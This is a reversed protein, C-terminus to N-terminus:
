TGVAAGVTLLEGDTMMISSKFPVVVVEEDGDGVKDDEPPPDNNSTDNNGDVAGLKDNTGLEISDSPPSSEDLEGKGVDDNDVFADVDGVIILEEEGDGDIRVDDYEENGDKSGVSDDEEEDDNGLRAGVIIDVPIGLADDEEKGVRLGIMTVLSGVVDTGVILAVTVEDSGGVMICSFTVVVLGFGVVAGCCCPGVGVRSGIMCVM